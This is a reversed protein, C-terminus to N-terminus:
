FSPCMAGQVELDRVRSFNCAFIVCTVTERGAGVTVGRELSSRELWHSAAMHGTDATDAQRGILPAPGPLLCLGTQLCLGPPFVDDAMNTHRYSPIIGYSMPSSPTFYRLVNAIVTHCVTLCQRHRHSMGYSIKNLTHCVTLFKRQCHFNFVELVELVTQGFSAPLFVM